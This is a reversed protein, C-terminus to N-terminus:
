DDLSSVSRCHGFGSIVILGIIASRGGGAMMCQPKPPTEGQVICPVSLVGTSLVPSLIMQM